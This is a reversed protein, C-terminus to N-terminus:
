RLIKIEWELDIGSKEKVSKKVETGLDILDQARAKGRNIMFNCHKESIQADGIIKGRCGAEDILQWARKEPPNKFTSGGTKARIPQATERQQNLESIKKTVAEISSKEARFVAEVFFFDKAIKSGRYFFGFDPNKLEYLKGDHDLATASVLIQSVDSGYCGANMAMAGGVSGPIGTFFELGSLASNKCSLAVNGCLAAAGARVLNGECSIKAFEGPLRIVVGKVGEDSIIVNSGAGLIQVPIEKPCNKLFDQLDALDAPRFMIEAPGGVDFWSKLEANKRYQGRILPLHYTTLPLTM